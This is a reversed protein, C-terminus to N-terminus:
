TAVPKLNVVAAALRHREASQEERIVQGLLRQRRHPRKGEDACAGMSEEAKLGVAIRIRAGVVHVELQAPSAVLDTEIRRSSRIDGGDHEPSLLRANRLAPEM